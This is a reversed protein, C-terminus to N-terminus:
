WEGGASCSNREYSRQESAHIKLAGVSAANWLQRDTCVCKKKAWRINTLGFHINTVAGFSSKGFTRYIRKLKLLFSLFRSPLEYLKELLIKNQVRMNSFTQIQSRCTCRLDWHSALILDFRICISVFFKNTQISRICDDTLFEFMSFFTM